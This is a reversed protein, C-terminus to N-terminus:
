FSIINSDISFLVNQSNEPAASIWLFNIYHEYGPKPIPEFLRSQLVNINEVIFIYYVFIFLQM